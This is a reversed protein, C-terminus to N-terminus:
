PTRGCGNAAPWAICATSQRPPPAAPPLPAVAAVWPGVAEWCPRGCRRLSKSISRATAMRRARPESASCLYLPPPDSYVASAARTCCRDYSPSQALPRRVRWSVASRARPLQCASVTDFDAIIEKVDAESLKSNGTQRTLVERIEEVSLAGSGDADFLM